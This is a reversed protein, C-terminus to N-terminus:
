IQAEFCNAPYIDLGCLFPVSNEAATNQWNEEAVDDIWIAKFWQEYKVVFARKITHVYVVKANAYRNEGSRTVTGTAGM